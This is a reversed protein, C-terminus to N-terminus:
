AGVPSFTITQDSTGGTGGSYLAIPTGAGEDRFSLRCGNSDNTWRVAKLDIETAGVLNTFDFTFVIGQGPVTNATTGNLVDSNVSWTGATSHIGTATGGTFDTASFPSAATGLAQFNIDFSGSLGPLAGSVSPPNLAGTGLLNSMAASTTGLNVTITGTHITNGGSGNFNVKLDARLLPTGIALTAAMCAALIRNKSYHTTM